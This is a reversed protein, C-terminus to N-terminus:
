FRVSITVSGGFPVTHLFVPMPEWISHHAKLTNPDGDCTFRIPGGSYERRIMEQENEWLISCRTMQM